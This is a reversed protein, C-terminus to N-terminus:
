GRLMNGIMNRNRVLFIIIGVVIVIGAAMIAREPDIAQVM